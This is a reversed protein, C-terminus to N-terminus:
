AVMEAPGRRWQGVAAGVVLFLMMSAVYALIADFTGAFLLYGALTGLVVAAQDRQAPAGTRVVQWSRWGILGFLALLPLLAVLGGSTLVYLYLNHPAVALQVTSGRPTWGAAVAAESYNDLGLGLVPSQQALELGVALAQLRYQISGESEFREQVARTDVLGGGVLLGVVLVVPLIRLALRRAPKSFIATVGIGVIAAAWGARVYTLLIGAGTAGLAAAWFVRAAARDAKALALFLAPVPVALTLAMIAPSGFISTVKVSHQGYAWRYPVPSLIAQNTLQERAAILGLIASILALLVILRHLGRESDLLTRAFFFCLLPIVVTDFVNQVGGVVGLRSAPVALLMGVLFLAGMGEIATLRVLRRRRVAMQAIMLLFLFLAAVRNLGLDPLGRGMALNFLQGFPALALWGLLGLSPAVALSVVVAALGVITLAQLEQGATLAAALALALGLAGAAGVLNVAVSVVRGVDVAPLKPLRGGVDARTSVTM